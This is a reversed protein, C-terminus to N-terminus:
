QGGLVVAAIRGVREPDGITDIGVIKGSAVTFAMVAYLQGRFTVVVGASGNVLVNHLEATLRAGIRAQAAVAGAGRFVASRSPRGPSFDARLVVDPHLMAVLADLDGARAAAFFANVV